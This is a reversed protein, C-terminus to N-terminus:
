PTVAPNDGRGELVDTIRECFLPSAERALKDSPHSDKESVANQPLVYDGAGTELTRFDWVFINDGVQDWENMMWKSFGTAAGAAQANTVAKTLAPPTWVLFLTEPYKRMEEKLAQYQLKYNEIMRRESDINPTGDFVIKSGPFCHKFVILDYDSALTKLTPEEMYYDAEGHKVWINYFDFPYNNWGYPEKKPFFLSEVVYKKGNKRNYHEFWAEVASKLGLKGKIKAVLNNGGRWITNGTSHHLFAVRKIISETMEKSNNNQCAAFFMFFAVVGGMGWMKPNM